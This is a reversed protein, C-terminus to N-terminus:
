DVNAGDWDVLKWWCVLVLSAGMGGPILAIKRRTLVELRQEVEGGDGRVRALSLWPAGLGAAGVGIPQMKNFFLSNCTVRGRDQAQSPFTLLSPISNYRGAPRM